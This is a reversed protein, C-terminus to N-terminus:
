LLTILVNLAIEIQKYACNLIGNDKKVRYSACKIMYHLFVGTVCAQISFVRGGYFHTIIRM